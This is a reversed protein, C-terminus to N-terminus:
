RVRSVADVEAEWYVPLKGWQNPPKADSIYLYGIRKIIADKVVERMTEVDPINYPMAAFRSPDYAKLPAPLEFQEFGEFNVFVCTVNSVARALYADDCPVGPNTIVLSDSIKRKVFDRLEAFQTANRSESPQQDFFFGRVQPYFRLWTDVDNKIEAHPRNGYDTSVYGVLTIGHNSAESFIATYDINRESGPGSNPNAIAVIEVKSAADILRQWEKRGDGGPYIYFPVLLCLRRSASASSLKPHGAVDVQSGSPSAGRSTNGTSTGAITNESSTPNGGPVSPRALKSPALNDPKGLEAGRPAPSLEAKDPTPSRLWLTVGVALALFAISGNAIVWTKKGPISQHAPVEMQPRVPGKPQFIQASTSAGAPLSQGASQPNPSYGPPLVVTNVADSGPDSGSRTPATAREAQATADSPYWWAPAEKADGGTSTSIPAPGITLDAGCEPCKTHKGFHRDESKFARGCTCVVRIM